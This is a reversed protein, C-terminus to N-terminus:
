QNASEKGQQQQIEVYVEDYPLDLLIFGQKCYRDYHKKFRSYLKGIADDKTWLDYFDNEKFGEDPAAILKFFYRPFVEGEGCNEVTINNTYSLLRSAVKAFKCADKYVHRQLREKKRHWRQRKQYRRWAKLNSVDDNFNINGYWARYPYDRIFNIISVVEGEDLCVSGDAAMIVKMDCVYYSTSPKFKDIENEYQAFFKGIISVEDETNIQLEWWIGYLWGPTEKLRFHVVTNPGYDFIFYGNGYDETTITYPKPQQSKLHEFLQNTLTLLKQSIVDDTSYVTIEADPHYKVHYAIEMELNHSSWYIIDPFDEGHYKIHYYM